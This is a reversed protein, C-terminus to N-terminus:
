ELSESDLTNHQGGERCHTEGEELPEATGRREYAYQFSVPYLAAIDASSGGHGAASAHVHQHPLVTLSVAPVLGNTGGSSPKSHPDVILRALKGGPETHNGGALARFGSNEEGAKRWPGGGFDKV